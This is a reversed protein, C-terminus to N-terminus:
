RFGNLPKPVWPTWIQGKGNSQKTAKVVAQVVTCDTVLRSVINLTKNGDVAMTLTARQWFRIM